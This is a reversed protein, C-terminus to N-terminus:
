VDSSDIPASRDPLPRVLRLRAAPRTSAKEQIPDFNPSAVAVIRARRPQRVRVPNVLRMGRVRKVVTVSYVAGCIPWWRDGAKELFATRELWRASRFLPRYCGYSGAQFEFSLLKCWDRLRPLGIFHEDPPLLPRSLLRGIGQSIGWLSVPNFGVIIVRGNPRLVRDVERLVQHPDSAFELVHPLVILDASETALPLEEYSDIVVDASPHSHDYHAVGDSRTILFRTRMRNQRLAQLERLGCQLGVFGFLNAVAQDLHAQEWDLVYRGAPSALWKRWQSESVPLEPDPRGSPQSPPVHASPGPSDIGPANRKQASKEMVLNNARNCTRATPVERGVSKVLRAVSRLIAPRGNTKLSNLPEKSTAHFSKGSRSASLARRRFGAEGWPRWENGSRDLPGPVSGACVRRPGAPRM